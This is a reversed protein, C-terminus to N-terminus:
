YKRSDRKSLTLATNAAILLAEEDSLDNSLKVFSDVSMDCGYWKEDKDSTCAYKWYLVDGFLKFCYEDFQVSNGILLSRLVIEAKHKM